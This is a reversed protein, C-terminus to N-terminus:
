EVQKRLPPNLALGGGPCPTLSDARENKSREKEQSLKARRVSVIMQLMGIRAEDSTREQVKGQTM